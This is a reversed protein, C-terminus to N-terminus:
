AVEARAARAPKLELVVSLEPGSDGEMVRRVAPLSTEWSEWNELSM